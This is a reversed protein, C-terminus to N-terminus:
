DSAEQFSNSVEILQAFKDKAGSSAITEGAARVGAELSDAIGSAYIAAGANLQVIDRAAGQENDFVRHILALSQKADSVALSKINGTKM